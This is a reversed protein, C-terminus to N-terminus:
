VGGTDSEVPAEPDSPPEAIQRQLTSILEDKDALRSAMM